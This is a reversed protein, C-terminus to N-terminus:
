TIPSGSPNIPNPGTTRGGGHVMVDAPEAALVFPARLVLLLAL